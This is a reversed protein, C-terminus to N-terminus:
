KPIENTPASDGLVTTRVDTTSTLPPYGTTKADRLYEDADRGTLFAVLEMLDYLREAVECAMGALTDKGGYAMSEEFMSLDRLLAKTSIMM